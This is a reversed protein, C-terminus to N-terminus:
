LFPMMYTIDDLMCFYVGSKENKELLRIHAAFWAMKGDPLYTRYVVKSVTDFTQLKDFAELFRPIDEKYIHDTVTTKDNYMEERTSGILHYYSNSTMINEVLNGEGREVMVYGDHMGVLLRSHSQMEDWFQEPSIVQEDYPKEVQRHSSPAENLYKVFDEEPMPKSYYFGQVQTCGISKLYELQEKTEVGEVISQIGLWKTMHVVATLIRRSKADDDSKSLFRLDIKLGDVPIDKLMNLSSYGSGFDDMEVDFGFNRLEDLINKMLQECQTYASETFELKLQKPSISYKRVLNKLMNCLEPNYMDVRSINVSIPPVDMGQAQKMSIFKCTEEWVYADLKMIFGNEEFIPIFVGPSIIGKDPSVWRVLAEAGVIREDDVSHKPQYYVVFERNNLAMGMKSSIEVEQLAREHMSEDFYAIHNVYNGKVTKLALNARECMNSVNVSRDRIVYVGFSMLLEMSIKSGFSQMYDEIELVFNETSDKTYPYLCAFLDAHIRAVLSNEVTEFVRLISEAMYQLLRDGEGLGYMENIMTLRNIDLELIAFSVDPNKDIIWRAEKFFYEKTFVRTLADIHRLDIGSREM